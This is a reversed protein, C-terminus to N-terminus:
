VSLQYGVAKKILPEGALSHDVAIGSRDPYYHGFEDMIDRLYESLNKGTVAVM